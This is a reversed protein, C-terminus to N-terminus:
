GVDSYMNKVIRTQNRHISTKCTFAYKAPMYQYENDTWYNEALLQRIGIIEGFVPISM